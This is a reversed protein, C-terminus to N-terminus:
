SIRNIFYNVKTMQDTTPWWGGAPAKGGYGAPDQRALLGQTLAKHDAESQIRVPPAAEFVPQAADFAESRALPEAQKRTLKSTAAQGKAM